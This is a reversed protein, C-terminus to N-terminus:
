ICGQIEFALTIALSYKSLITTLDFVYRYKMREAKGKM